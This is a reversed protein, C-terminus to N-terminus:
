LHRDADMREHLVRVIEITEEGVRYYFQHQGIQLARYGPRIQERSVGIEPHSRLRQLGKHLKELYSDAQLEGWQDFSYRWIQKLDDRARPRIVLEFM